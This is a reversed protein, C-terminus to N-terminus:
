LGFYSCVEDRNLRIAGRIKVARLEGDKILQYITNRCVQACEAVQRVTVLEGFNRLSRPESTANMDKVGAMERGTNGQRVLGISVCPSVHMHQHITFRVICPLFSIQYYHNVPPEKNLHDCHVSSPNDSFLGFSFGITKSHM